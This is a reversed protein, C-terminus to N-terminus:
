RGSFFKRTLVKQFERRIILETIREEFTSIESESLSRKYDKENIDVRYLLSHFARADDRYIKGIIPILQRKLEDFAQHENGSFIINFDEINLDRSIQEATERIIARDHRYKEPIIDM